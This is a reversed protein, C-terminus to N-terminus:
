RLRHWHEIITTDAPQLTFTMVAGRFSVDTLTDDDMQLADGNVDGVNNVFTWPVITDQMARTGYNFLHRRLTGNASFSLREMGHQTSQTWTGVILKSLRDIRTKASSCLAVAKTRGGELGAATRQEMCTAVSFALTPSTSGFMAVCVLVSILLRM